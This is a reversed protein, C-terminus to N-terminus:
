KGHEKSGYTGKYVEIAGSSPNRKEEIDMWEGKIGFLGKKREKVQYRGCTQCLGNKECYDHFEQGELVKGAVNLVHGGQGSGRGHEGTRPTTVNRRVPACQRRMEKDKENSTDQTRNRVSLTDVDLDSVFSKENAIRRDIDRLQLELDNARSFLMKAVAKDLETQLSTQTTRLDDVTPYQVKLQELEELRHQLDQAELYNHLMLASSKREAISAIEKELEFRSDVKLSLEPQKGIRILEDYSENTMRRAAKHIRAPVGEGILSFIDRCRKSMSVSPVRADAQADPVLLSALEEASRVAVSRKEAVQPCFTGFLIASARFELPALNLCKELRQGQFSVDQGAPCVVIVKTHATHRYVRRFFLELKQRGSSGLSRADIGLLARRDRLFDVATACVGGYRVAADEQLAETTWEKLLLQFVKHVNSMGDKELVEQPDMWIVEDVALTRKRQYIYWCVVIALSAKGVGAGGTIRVLDAGHRLAEVVRYMEVQRERFFAPPRPLSPTTPKGEDRRPLVSKTFFVRVDHYSDNDPKEPLLLFKDMEIWPAGIVLPSVRVAQRALEFASKLNKGCALARYFNRAFECAAMDQLKDDDQKCCVVHPVGAALFADGASRSHCASVFVVKLENAPRMFEKLESVQLVQMGGWGNEIALYHPHGHCSVHVVQSDSKAFFASFRETTATEFVVDIHAGIEEAEKLSETLVQREYEHDLLAIPHFRHAIDETLKEYVLPAAQFVVLRDYRYNPQEASQVTSEEDRKRSKKSSSKDKEKKDKSKKKKDKRSKRRDDDPWKVSANASTAVPKPARAPPVSERPRRFLLNVQDPDTETILDMIEDFTLRSVNKDNISLLEDGVELKRSLAAGGTRPLVCIRVGRQTFPSNHEYMPEFAIGMPKRLTLQILGSSPPPQPTTDDQENPSNYAGYYRQQPTSSRGANSCPPVPSPSRADYPAATVAAGDRVVGRTSNKM